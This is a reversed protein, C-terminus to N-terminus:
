RGPRRETRTRGASRAGDPPPPSFLRPSAARTFHHHLESRGICLRICAPNIFSPICLHFASCKCCEQRQEDQPGTGSVGLEHVPPERCREVRELPEVGRPSGPGVEPCELRHLKRHGLVVKRDVGVELPRDVARVIEAVVAIDPEVVEVEAPGIDPLHEIQTEPALRDVRPHPVACYVAERGTRPDQVIPDGDRPVPPGGDIVFVRTDPVVPM